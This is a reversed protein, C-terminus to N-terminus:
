VADNEQDPLSGNACNDSNNANTQEANQQDKEDHEPRENLSVVANPAGFVRMEIEEAETITVTRFTLEIFAVRFQRMSVSYIIPNLLSNISLMSMALFFFIYVTELSVESRYRLIVVRFAVIPVYCLILM